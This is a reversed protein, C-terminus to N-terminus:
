KLFTKLKKVYIMDSPAKFSDKPTIPFESSLKSMIEFTSTLDKSMLDYMATQTSMKKPLEEWKYPDKFVEEYHNNDIEGGTGWYVIKPRSDIIKEDITRRLDEFADVSKQTAGMVGFNDPIYIPRKGVCKDPESKFKVTELSTPYGKFQPLINEKKLKTYLEADTILNYGEEVQYSLRASEKGSEIGPFHFYNAFGESSYMSGCSKEYGKYSSKHKEFFLNLVYANDETLKVCWKEQQSEKLIYKKFDEFSIEEGFDFWYYEEGKPSKTTNIPNYGKAFKNGKTEYIGVLHQTTLLFKSDYWKSLINKNEETVRVWWNTQENIEKM